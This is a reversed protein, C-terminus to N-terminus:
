EVESCVNQPSRVGVETVKGSANDVDFYFDGYDYSTESQRNIVCIPQGARSRAFIQEVGPAIGDPTRFRTDTAIIWYVEDSAAVALGDFNYSTSASGRLPTTSQPNGKLALLQGLTMGIEVDGIREGKVIVDDNLTLPRPNTECSAFITAAPLAILALYKQM